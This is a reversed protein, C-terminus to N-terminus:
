HSKNELQGGWMVHHPALCMWGEGGKSPQETHHHLVVGKRATPPRHIAGCVLRHGREMVSKGDVDQGLYVRLYEEGEPMSFCTSSRVKEVDFHMCLSRSSALNCLPFKFAEASPMSISNYVPQAADNRALASPALVGAMKDMLHMCASKLTHGPKGLPFVSSGKVM